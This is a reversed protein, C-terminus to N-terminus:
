IHVERSAWVTFRRGVIRSVRTWDRPQSSRRSFSIAIWEPKRAQFPLGLFLPGQYAATWPTVFLRVRSLSKVKVKFLTKPPSFITGKHVSYSINGLFYQSPFCIGTIWVFKLHGGWGGDRRLYYFTTLEGIGNRSLVISCLLSPILTPSSVCLSTQHRAPLEM